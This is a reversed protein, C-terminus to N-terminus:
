ARSKVLPLVRGKGSRKAAYCAEDAARLVDMAGSSAADVAAVGASAGVNLRATKWPYHYAAISAILEQAIEEAQDPSCGLLLIAFEDGGMRALIDGRRLRSGMLITLAVLLRDGAEHGFTDNVPKFEDLDIAILGHVTERRRADYLALELSQLLYRRNYAGTLPDHSAEYSLQEERLRKQTVDRFVSVVYRVIGDTVIPRSSIEAWIMDGDKKELRVQRHLPNGALLTERAKRLEEEDTYRGSFADASRGHLEELSYGSMRLLMANAYCIEFRETKENREYLVIGDNAENLALTILELQKQTAHRETIDTSMGCTAYPEGGADRLVFKVSLATLTRGNCDIVTEEEVLPAGAELARTDNARLVAAMARPFIEYDTKGLFDVQRVGHLQEFRRNILLYRGEMDKAYVVSETNDMIGELLSRTSRLQEESAKRESIDRHISVAGILSGAEDFLPRMHVEVWFTSGDRRYKLLEGNCARGERLEQALRVGEGVDTLPGYLSFNSKGIVADRRYGTQEEFARNVYAYIFDGNPDPLDFLVVGDHASEVATSLFQEWDRGSGLKM